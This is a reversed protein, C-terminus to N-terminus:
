VSKNSHRVLVGQGMKPVGGSRSRGPTWEWGTFTVPVIPNFEPGM